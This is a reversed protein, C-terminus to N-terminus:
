HAVVSTPLTSVSWDDPNIRGLADDMRRHFQEPNLDLSAMGGSESLIDAGSLFEFPARTAVLYFSESGAPPKVVIHLGSEPSPFNVIEAPRMAQNHILRTVKCSTSVHYLSLFSPTSVRMQLRLPEGVYFREGPVGWSEVLFTRGAKIRPLECQAAHVSSASLVALAAVSVIRNRIFSPM